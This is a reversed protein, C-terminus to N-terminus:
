PLAGRDAAGATSAAASVAPVGDPGTGTGARAAARTREAAARIRLVVRDRAGPDPAALRSEIQAHVHDEIVDTRHRQAAVADGADHLDVAARELQARLGPVEAAQETAHVLAYLLYSVLGIVLVAIVGGAVWAIV